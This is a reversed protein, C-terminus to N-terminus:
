RSKVHKQRGELDDFVSLFVCIQVFHGFEEVDVLILDHSHTLLTHTLLTHTHTQTNPTHTHTHANLSSRLLALPTHLSDRGIFTVFNSSWAPLFGAASGRCQMESGTTQM